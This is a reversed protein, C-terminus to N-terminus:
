ERHRNRPNFMLDLLIEQQLRRARWMPIQCILFVLFGLALAALIIGIIAVVSLHM